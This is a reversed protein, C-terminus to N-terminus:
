LWVQTDTAQKNAGGVTNQEVFLVVHYHNSMVAYGCLEISFIGSCFTSSIRLGNVATNM